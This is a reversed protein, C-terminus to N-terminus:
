IEVDESAIIEYKERDTVWIVQDDTIYTLEYKSGYQKQIQEFIEPYNGNHPMVHFDVVHMGTKEELEPALNPNDMLAVYEITPSCIVAGASLGIYLKGSEIYEKIAKELDKKRLQQMLYFTNGGDIFLADTKALKNKLQESSEKTVDLEVLEYGLKKLKCRDEEVWENHSEVESATPIFGVRSGKELKSELVKFNDSVLLVKM